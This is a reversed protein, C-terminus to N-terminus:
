LNKGSAVDRDGASHSLKDNPAEDRMWLNRWGSPKYSTGAILIALLFWLGSHGKWFVLYACGAMIACDWVICYILYTVMSLAGLWASWRVRGEREPKM